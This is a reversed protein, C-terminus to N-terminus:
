PRWAEGRGAHLRELQGTVAWAFRQRATDIFFHGGPLTTVTFDGTTHAGWGELGARPVTADESGGFAAIPCDLPRGSEHDYTEDLGLDARIVPLMVDVLEENDLMPNHQGALQHLGEVLDARTLEHLPPRTSRLHPARAAGVFLAEPGPRGRRALERATEFGILAGVSYGLLVFPRRVEEDVADTVQEVLPGLRTLPPEGLRRGHGPLEVACVEVVDPLDAALGKFASARGGSYPLCVLRLRAAPNPRPRQIWERHGARSAVPAPGGDRAPDLREPSERM